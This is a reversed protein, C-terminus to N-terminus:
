SFDEVPKWWYPRIFFFLRALTESEKHNGNVVVISSELRASKIALASCCLLLGCVFSLSFYFSIFILQILTIIKILRWGVAFSYLNCLRSV